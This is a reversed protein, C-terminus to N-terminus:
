GLDSAGGRASSAVVVRSSVNNSHARGRACCAGPTSIRGIENPSSRTVVNSRGLVPASQRASRAVVFHSAFHPLVFSHRFGFMSCPAQGSATDKKRGGDETRQGGDKLGLVMGM